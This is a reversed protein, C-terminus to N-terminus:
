QYRLFGEAQTKKAQRYKDVFQSRRKGQLWKTPHYVGLVLLAVWMATAEFVWLAWENDFLYGTVGGTFEITRYVSRIQVCDACGAIVSGGRFPVWRWM